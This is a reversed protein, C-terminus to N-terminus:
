ECELQEVKSSIPLGRDRAEGADVVIEVGNVVARVARPKSHRDAAQMDIYQLVTSKTEQWAEGDLRYLSRALHANYWSKQQVTRSAALATLLIRTHAKSHEEWAHEPCQRIALFLGDLLGELRIRPQAIFSTFALHLAAALKCVGAADSEGAAALIAADSELDDYYQQVMDDFSAPAATAEESSITSYVETDAEIETLDQLDLFLNAVEEFAASDLTSNIDPGTPLEATDTPSTYVLRKSFYVAHCIDLIELLMALRRPRIQKIGGRLEIIQAIGLLHLMSETSGRSIEYSALSGLASTTDDDLGSVHDALRQNVLMLVNTKLLRADFDMPQM